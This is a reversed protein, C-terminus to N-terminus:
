DTGAQLGPTQRSAVRPALRASESLRRRLRSRTRHLTVAVVSWSTGLLRAIEKNSWGELHHLVFIEAAKPNLEALAQRLQGGLDRRRRAEDPTSGSRDMPDPVAELPVQERRARLVDLSLNVAARHFYAAELAEPALRDERRLLRLFLSHLVDEADRPSGTIRCATALIRAQHQWYLRELPELITPPPPHMETLTM